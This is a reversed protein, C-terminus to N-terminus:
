RDSRWGTAWCGHGAYACACATRLACSPGRPESLPLNLKSSSTTTHGVPVSGAPVGCRTVGGMVVYVRCPLTSVGVGCSVRVVVVCGRTRWFPCSSPLARIGTRLVGGVRRVRRCRRVVAWGRSCDCMVATTVVFGALATGKAAAQQVRHDQAAGGM